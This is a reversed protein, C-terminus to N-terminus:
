KLVCYNRVTYSEGHMLFGSWSREERHLNLHFNLSIQNLCQTPMYGHLQVCLVTVAVSLGHVEYPIQLTHHTLTTLNERVSSKKFESCSLKIQNLKSLLKEVQDLLAIKNQEWKAKHPVIMTQFLSLLCTM